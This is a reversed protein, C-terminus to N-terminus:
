IRRITDTVKDVVAAAAAAVDFAVVVVVDVRELGLSDGALAHGAGGNPKTSGLDSPNMLTEKWGPKM